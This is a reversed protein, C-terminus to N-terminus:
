FVKTTLPQDLTIKTNLKLRLSFLIVAWVHGNDLIDIMWKLHIDKFLMNDISFSYQNSNQYYMTQFFKGFVRDVYYQLFSQECRKPKNAGLIVEHFVQWHDTFELKDMM